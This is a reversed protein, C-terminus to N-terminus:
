FCENKKCIQYSCLSTSTRQLECSMVSISLSIFPPLRFYPFFSLLFSPLFSAVIISVEGNLLDFTLDFEVSRPVCPEVFSIFMKCFQFVNLFRFFFIMMMMMLPLGVFWRFNVVIEDQFQM